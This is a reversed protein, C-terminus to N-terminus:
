DVLLFGLRVAVSKALDGSVTLTRPRLQLRGRTYVTEPAVAKVVEDRGFRGAEVADALAVDTAVFEIHEAGTEGSTAWEVGTAPGLIRVEQNARVRANPQFRNPFMQTTSGDAGFHVVRVFQDRTVSFRVDLADGVKVVGQNLTAVLRGGGPLDAQAKVPASGSQTVTPAAPIAVVATGEGEEAGGFEEYAIAEFSRLPFDLAACIRPWQQLWTQRPIPLGRELQAALIVVGPDDSARLTKLLDQPEEGLEAAERALDVPENFHRYLLLM